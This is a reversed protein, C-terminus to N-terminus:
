PLSLTNLQTAVGVRLGAEDMRTIAELARGFSGSVGRLEDHVARTGDVSVTVSSIELDLLQAVVRESVSMGSTIIELAMKRARVEHALESWDPRSFPEGGLFTVRRCDLEALERIVGRWEQTDLERERRRGARSGCTVCRCPCALTLELGAYHPRARM